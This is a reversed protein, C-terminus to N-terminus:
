CYREAAASQRESYRDGHAWGVPLLAEVEALLDHRTALEPAEAWERVHAATRAGPIPALHEGQAIVWGLALAPASVGHDAALARFANAKEQNAPWHPDQFRPMQARFPGLDPSSVDFPTSGLVGRAIPSFPVFTVGLDACTQILGLEPQRTWLSYENQVAAVPTEAHAMRLTTPSVESMGWGGIKGAEIMRAMFGAVDAIPVSPDRRHIYFLDVFDVGLRKLSGNLEAELYSPENNTPREPDRQIGAKTAIVPKHGRTSLWTKIVNESIHPGYINATDLFNIGLGWAADLANLGDEETTAGTGGGLSMCGYGLVSIDTGTNGLKLTKM